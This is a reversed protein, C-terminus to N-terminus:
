PNSRGIAALLTVENRSIYRDTIASDTFRGPSGVRKAELIPRVHNILGDMTIDGSPAENLPEDCMAEYLRRYEAPDIVPPGDALAVTVNDSENM